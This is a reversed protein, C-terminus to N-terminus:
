DGDGVPRTLAPRLVLEAQVGGREYLVRGPFIAIIRARELTDGPRLSRGNIVAEARGPGWFIAQLRLSQEQAQGQRTKPAVFNVPRTPDLIPTESETATAPLIWLAACLRWVFCRLPSLISKLCM